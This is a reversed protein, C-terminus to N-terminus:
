HIWAQVEPPHVELRNHEQFYVQAKEDAITVIWYTEIDTVLPLVVRDRWTLSPDRLTYLMVVDGDKRLCRNKGYAVSGPLPETQRLRVYNGYVFAVFLTVIVAVALVQDM